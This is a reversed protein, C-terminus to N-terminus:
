YCAAGPPLTRPVQPLQALDSDAMSFGLGVVKITVYPRGAPRLQQVVVHNLANPSVTAPIKGIVDGRVVVLVLVHLRRDTRVAVTFAPGGTPGCVAHARVIRVHPRTSDSADRSTSGVSVTSGIAVIDGAPPDTSAIKFPGVGGQLDIDLGMTQLESGTAASPIAVYGDPILRASDLIPDVVGRHPSSAFLVVALSPIFLTGEYRPYPCQVPKGGPGSAPCSPAFHHTPLRYAELGGVTVPERARQALSLASNNQGVDAIQLVSVEPSPVIQCLQVTATDWMVTDGIPTGCKVRDNAWAAPVSVMVGNMGVLRTGPATTPTTSTVPGSEHGGSSVVAVAVVVAAASVGAVVAVIRRRRRAASGLLEGIPPPEVVVEDAARLLVDRTQTEITM